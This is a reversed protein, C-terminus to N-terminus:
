LRMVFLPSPEYKDDLSPLLYTVRRRELEHCWQGPTLERCQDYKSLDFGEPVPISSTKREDM